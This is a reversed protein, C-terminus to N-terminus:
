NSEERVSHRNGTEAETVKNLYQPPPLVHATRNKDRKRYELYRRWQRVYMYVDHVTYRIGPALGPRAAGRRPLVPDRSNVFHQSLM